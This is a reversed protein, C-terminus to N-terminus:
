RPADTATSYGPRAAAYARPDGGFGNLLPLSTLLTGGMLATRRAKATEM